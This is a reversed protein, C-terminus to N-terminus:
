DGRQYVDPIGDGDADISEVRAAERYGLERMRLVAAAVLAAGVSGLLVGVKAHEVAQHDGPFALETILLSM